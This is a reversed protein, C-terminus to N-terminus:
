RRDRYGPVPQEKQRSVAREADTMRMQWPSQQEDKLVQSVDEKVLRSLSPIMKGSEMTGKDYSCGKTDHHDHEM